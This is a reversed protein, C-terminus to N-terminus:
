VLALFVKLLPKALDLLLLPIHVVLKEKGMAVIARRDPLRYTERYNNLGSDLTFPPPPTSAQLRIAEALTTPWGSFEVLPSISVLLPQASLGVDPIPIQVAIM